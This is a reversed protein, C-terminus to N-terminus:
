YGVATRVTHHSPTDSYFFFFSETPSSFQYSRSVQEPTARFSRSMLDVSSTALDSYVSTYQITRDYTARRSQCYNRQWIFSLNMNIRYM